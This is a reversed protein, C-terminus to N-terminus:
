QADKKGSLPGSFTSLPAAIEKQKVRYIGIVNSIFTTAEVAMVPYSGTFAGFIFWMIHTPLMLLRMQLNCDSTEAFRGVMFAAMPLASYWAITDMFYLAVSSPILTIVIRKKISLEANTRSAHYSFLAQTSAVAVAEFHGMLAFHLSYFGGIAANWRLVNKKQISQFKFIAMPVILFGIIQALIEVPV